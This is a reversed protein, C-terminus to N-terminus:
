QQVIHETIWPMFTVVNTYISPLLYNFNCATGGAAVVGYQVYKKFRKYPALQFLPGGSDGKCTDHGNKVDGACLHKENLPIKFANQCVTHNYQNVFAKLLLSSHSGIETVGWGGIFFKENVDMEMSRQTVPLCIPKIHIKFEVKRDLKLLAIDNSRSRLSYKPHILINKIGFDEVPPACFVKDGREECDVNKSLDHEGLRVGIIPDPTRVCHAATLVYFNTILAGGCKFEDSPSDYRLLAMWPFENLNTEEGGLVRNTNSDGCNLSNLINLGKTNLQSVYDRNYDTDEVFKATTDLLVTEVPELLAIVQEPKCCIRVPETDKSCRSRIIYDIYHSPIRDVYKEYLDTIFKCQKSPVCVGSEYSPLECSDEGITIKSTLHLYFILFTFSINKKLNM